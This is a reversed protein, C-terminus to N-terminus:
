KETNVKDFAVKLKKFTNTQQEHLRQMHRLHLIMSPHSFTYFDLRTTKWCYICIFCYQEMEDIGERLEWECRIVIFGSSVNSKRELLQLM